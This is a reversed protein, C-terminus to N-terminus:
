IETAKLLLPKNTLAVQGDHTLQMLKVRTSLSTSAGGRLVINKIMMDSPALFM